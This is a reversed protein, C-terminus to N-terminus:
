VMLSYRAMATDWPLALYVVNAANGGAEAQLRAAMAEAEKPGLMGYVSARPKRRDKRADTIMDGAYIGIVVM